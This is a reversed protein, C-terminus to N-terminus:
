EQQQAAGQGPNKYKTARILLVDPDDPNEEARFNCDMNEDMFGKMAACTAADMNKAKLMFEDPQSKKGIIAM